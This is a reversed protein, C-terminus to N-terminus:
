KKEEPCILELGFFGDAAFKKQLHKQIGAFVSDHYASDIQELGNLMDGWDAPLEYEFSSECIVDPSVKNTLQRVMKVKWRNDKM